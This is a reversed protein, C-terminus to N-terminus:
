WCKDGCGCGGGYFPAGGYFPTQYTAFPTGPVYTQPYTPMQRCEIAALRDSIGKTQNYIFENQNRQSIEVQLTQNKERLAGIQQEMQAHEFADIRNIVAQNNNNMTGVLTNTQNCMALRDEYGMSTIAGKVDCFGNSMQTALQCNGMQLANIIQQTTMGIQGGIQALTNNVQCIAGQIATTSTNLSSALQNIANGNGQIANMLLERGADNNLAEPVNNGFGNRGGFLFFLLIIWIWNGGGMGDQSKNNMLAAVLNPDLNNKGLLGSLLGMMNGDTAPANEFVFTKDM